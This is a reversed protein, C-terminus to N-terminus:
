LLYIISESCPISQKYMNFLREILQDRFFNFLRGHSILITEMGSKKLSM